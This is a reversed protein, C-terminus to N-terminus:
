LNIIIFEVLVMGIIAAIQGAAISDAGLGAGPQNQISGDLTSKIIKYDSDIKEFSLDDIFIIFRCQDYSGM